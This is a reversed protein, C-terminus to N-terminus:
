FMVGMKRARAVMRKRATFRPVAKIRAVKPAGDRKEEASMVEGLVRADHDMAILAANARLPVNLGKLRTFYAVVSTTWFWIDGVAQMRRGFEEQDDDPVNKGYKVECWIPPLGAVRLLTDANGKRVGRARERMHSFQGMKKARDFALFEGGIVAEEAFKKLHKQLIHERDIPRRRVTM